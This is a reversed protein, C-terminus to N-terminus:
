GNRELGERPGGELGGAPLRARGEGHHDVEDDWAGRQQADHGGKHRVAVRPRHAGRGRRGHLVLVLPLGKVEAEVLLHLAPSAPLKDFNSLRSFPKAFFTTLPFSTIRLIGFLM